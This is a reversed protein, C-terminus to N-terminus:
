LFKYKENISKCSSDLGPYVSEESVGLWKLEKKIESKKSGDIVISTLFHSKNPNNFLGDIENGFVTFCAKKAKMREDFLNPYIALPFAKKDSDFDMNLYMRCFEDINFKGDEDFLGDKKSDQPFYIGNLNIIRKDYKQYTLRNLTYPDLIWIKTDDKIADDKIAFYMAVLASETWDLLRTKLGYHQMLFYNNWANNEIRNQNLFITSNRSFEAKLNGEIDKTKRCIEEYNDKHVRGLFRYANPLLPTFHILKDSNNLAEENEIPLFNKEARFWLNQMDPKASFCRLQSKILEIIESLSEAKKVM